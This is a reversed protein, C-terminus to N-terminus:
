PERDSVPETEASGVEKDTDDAPPMPKLFRLDRGGHGSHCDLCDRQIDVHEPPQPSEMLGLDHCQLCLQPSRVALLHDYASEHPLHCWLCAHVAVPGHLVPYTELVDGHCQLCTTADLQDFGEVLFGYASTEGHCENCRREAYASHASRVILPQAVGGARSGGRWVLADEADPDPVGDFFFSLVDYHKEVSCGLWITMLAALSTACM